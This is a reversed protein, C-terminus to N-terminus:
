SQENAKNWIQNAVSLCREYKFSEGFSLSFIEQISRALEELTNVQQLSETVKEIESDFENDPAHPLLGYPNWEHIVQRVLNKMRM